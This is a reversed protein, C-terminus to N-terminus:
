KTPEPQPKQAADLAALVARAIAARQSYLLFAMNSGFPASACVDTVANIAVTERQTATMM